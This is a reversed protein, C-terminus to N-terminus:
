RESRGRAGESASHVYRAVYDRNTLPRRLRKKTYLVFNHDNLQEVVVRELTDARQLDRSTPNLNYALVQAPSPLLPPPPTLLAM